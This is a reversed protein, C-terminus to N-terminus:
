CINCLYSNPTRAIFWKVWQPRTACIHTLLSVMMPGSLPKDGPRSWAMIQVLAPITNIPGKPYFSWHFRLWFEYIKMWYLANSFAMLFNNVMKDRVWHTLVLFTYWTKKNRAEHGTGTSTTVDSGITYINSPQCWSLFVIHKYRFGSQSSVPGRNM